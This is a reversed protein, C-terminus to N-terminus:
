WCTSCFVGRRSAAWDRASKTESGGDDDRVTISQMPPVVECEIPGMDDLYAEVSEYGLGDVGHSKIAEEPLMEVVYHTEGDDIRFVRYDDGYCRSSGLNEPTDKQESM